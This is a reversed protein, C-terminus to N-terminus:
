WWGRLAGQRGGTVAGAAGQLGRGAARRRRWASRPRRKFEPPGAPPRRRRERPHRHQPGEVFERLEVGADEQYTRRHGRRGRDRGKGPTAGSHAGARGTGGGHRARGPGARRNATRARHATRERQVRLEHARVLRQLPLQRLRDQLLLLVEVDAHSHQSAPRAEQPGPDRRSESDGPGLPAFWRSHRSNVSLKRKPNGICRLQNFARTGDEHCSDSSYLM